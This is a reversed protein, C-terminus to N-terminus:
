AHGLLTQPGRKNHNSLNPGKIARQITIPVDLAFYTLREVAWMLKGCNRAGDKQPITRANSKDQRLHSCLQLGTGKATVPLNRIRGILSISLRPSPVTTYLM